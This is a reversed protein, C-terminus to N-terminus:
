SHYVRIVETIDKRCIPCGDRRNHLMKSCEYCTIMHHCPCLLCDRVRNMCIGCETDVSTSERNSERAPAENGDHLLVPIKKEFLCPIGSSNLLQEARVLLWLFFWQCISCQINYWFGFLIACSLYEQCIGYLVWSTWPCATQTNHYMYVYAKRPKYKVM